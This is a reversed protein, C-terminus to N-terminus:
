IAHMDFIKSVQIGIDIYFTQNQKIEAVINVNHLLIM